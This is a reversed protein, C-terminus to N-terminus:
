ILALVIHRLQDLLCLVAIVVVIRRIAGAGKKVGWHSALYSGAGCGVALAIAPPWVIADASVFVAVSTISTAIVIASKAALVAVLNKDYLGVLVLTAVLGTGVQAYGMHFGILFCGLLSVWVPRPKPTVETARPWLQQILLLVLVATLYLRFVLDDLATALQSGVLAGPVAGLAQLWARAPIRHGARLFGLAAFSGIAIAALRTSPNAEALPLHWLYEFAMLGLVGAGGALNNIAGMAIGLAATVAIAVIM